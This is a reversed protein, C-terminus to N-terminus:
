RAKKRGVAAYGPAAFLLANLRDINRNLLSATADAGPLPELKESALDGVPQIEVEEFASAELLFRLAEPHVPARHTADLFYIQVLAFVSLPNVTELVILGGPALKAFALEVLRRLGAPPLHEIVQASFIGGLSGDPKAALAELLGQRAVELGRGRCTGVMAENLDVGSGSRGRERLLELFEGRGCGLDLVPGEAPFLSVYAAQRRKIEEPTGRFRNEFRLYGWDEVPELVAKVSESSPPEKAELAAQLRGLQEKLRASTRMLAAADEYAQALRDIRWELGKIVMGVHNSGLADWERDRADALSDLRGALSSLAEALAEVLAATRALLRLTDPGGGSSPRRFPKGSPLVLAKEIESRFRSLDGSLRGIEAINERLKAQEDLRDQILKELTRQM